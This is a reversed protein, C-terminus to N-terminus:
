QRTDPRNLPLSVTVASGRRRATRVHLRGGLYRTIAAALALKALWRRQAQTHSMGPGDIPELSEWRRPLNFGDGDDRIDIVWEHRGLLRASLQVHGGVRTSTMANDLLRALGHRLLVWDQLLSGPIHPDVICSFRLGRNAARGAFQNVLMYLLMSSGIVNDFRCHTAGLELLDIFNDV